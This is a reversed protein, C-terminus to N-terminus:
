GMMGGGTKMRAFWFAGILGLTALVLGATMLRLNRIRVTEVDHTKLRAIVACAHREASWFIFIAIVLLLTAIAKPLWVPEMKGFLANFGVGVGVAALGTRLWGAYTRENALVTRDEAFDTREAALETKDGGEAM